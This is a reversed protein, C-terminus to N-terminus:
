AAWASQGDRAEARLSERQQGLLRVILDSNEVVAISDGGVFHITTEWGDQHTSYYTVTAMNVFVTETWQESGRSRRRTLSLPKM